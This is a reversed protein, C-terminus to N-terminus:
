MRAPLRRATATPYEATCEDMASSARASQGKRGGGGRAGLRVTITRTPAVPAHSRRRCNTVSTWVASRLAMLSPMRRHTREQVARAPAPGCHRQGHAARDANRVDGGASSVNQAGNVRRCAPCRRRPATRPHPPQPRPAPAAVATARHTACTSRPSEAARAAATTRQGARGRAGGRAAGAARPEPRGRRPSPRATRLPDAPRAQRIRVCTGLPPAPRAAFM